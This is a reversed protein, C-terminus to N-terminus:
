FNLTGPICVLYGFGPYLNKGDIVHHKLFTFEDINPKIIFKRETTPFIDTGLENLDWQEEHQWKVAPSIMPTSKSVPFEIPPYLASLKM